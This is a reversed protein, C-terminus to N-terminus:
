LEILGHRLRFVDAGRACVAACMSRVGVLKLVRWLSLAICIESCKVSSANDKESAAARSPSSLVELGPTISFRIWVAVVMSVMRASGPAMGMLACLRYREGLDVPRHASHSGVGMAPAQSTLVSPNM